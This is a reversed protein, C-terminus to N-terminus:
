RWRRRYAPWMECDTGWRRQMLAPVKLHCSCRTARCPQLTCTSSSCASNLGATCSHWGHRGVRVQVWEMNYRPGTSQQRQQQRQEADALMNASFDLGVVSGSPGVAEALRFALDGSGCCVDLARCGTTAGSWKVAMRKWVRHLGFSLQDNLQDYVPAITNFLRQRQEGERGEAFFDGNGSPSPADAGRVACMAVGQRCGRVSHCSSNGAAHLQQPRPASALALGTRNCFISGNMTLERGLAHRSRHEGEILIFKYKPLHLAEESKGCPPM